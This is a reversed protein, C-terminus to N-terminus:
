LKHEFHSGKERVYASLRQRWQDIANEILHQELENWSAVFFRKRLEVTNQIRTQYKQEVLSWISYDVHLNPSHPLWM